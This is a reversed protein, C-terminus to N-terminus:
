YDATVVRDLKLHGEPCVFLLTLDEDRSTNKLQHVVNPEIAFGDDIRVVKAREWVVTKQDGALSAVSINVFPDLQARTIEYTLNKCELM